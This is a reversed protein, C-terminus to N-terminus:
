VPRREAQGLDLGEAAYVRIHHVHASRWINPLSRPAAASGACAANKRRQAQRLSTTALRAFQQNPDYSAVIRLLVQRM